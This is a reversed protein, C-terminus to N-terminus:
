DDDTDAGDAPEDDLDTDINPDADNDPVEGIGADPYLLGGGRSRWWANVDAKAIRYEHGLRVAKIYGERIWKQVTQPKRDVDNALERTTVTARNEDEAM